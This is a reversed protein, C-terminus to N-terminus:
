LKVVKMSKVKFSKRSKNPLYAYFDGTKWDTEFPIANLGNKLTFKGIDKSEKKRVLKLRGEVSAGEEMGCDILLRYRGEPLCLNPGFLERGPGVAAENGGCCVAKRGPGKIKMMKVFNKGFLRSRLEDAGGFAYVSIYKDGYIYNGGDIYIGARDFQRESNSLLLFIKGEPDNELHRRDQLWSRVRLKTWQNGYSGYYDLTWMELGGDSLETLVNSNWFTAFGYKYDNELLFKVARKLSKAPIIRNPVPYFEYGFSLNEAETKIPYDLTPHLCFVALQVALWLAAAGLVANYILKLGKKKLIGVAAAFVPVFAAASMLLYRTAINFSMICFLVNLVFGAVAFATIFRHEFCLESFHLCVYVIVATLVICFSLACLARLGDPSFLAQSGTYGFVVNFCRVAFDLAASPALEGVTKSGYNQFIYNKQLIGFNVALGAANGVLLLLSHVCYHILDAKLEGGINQGRRLVLSYLLLFFAAAAFPVYLIMAYRIGSMGTLVALLCNVILLVINARKSKSRVALALTLFMFILHPLYGGNWLAFRGYEASFPLVLAAGCILGWRGLNMRESFACYCGMFILLMFALGSLHVLQWDNFIYFFLKYALPISLVRIETSYCWNGSLVGGEEKLLRGLILEASMDSDLLDTGCYLFLCVTFYVGLLWLAYYPWREKFFERIKDM